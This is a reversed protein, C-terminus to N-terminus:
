RKAVPRYAMSNDKERLGIRKTEIKRTERMIEKDIKLETIIKRRNRNMGPRRNRIHRREM